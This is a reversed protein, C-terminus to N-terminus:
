TYTNDKDEECTDNSMVEKILNRTKNSRSGNPDGTKSFLEAFRAHEKLLDNELEDPDIYRKM